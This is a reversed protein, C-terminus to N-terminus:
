EAVGDGDLDAAALHALRSSLPDAATSRFTWVESGDAGSRATVLAGTSDEAHFVIDPVDRSDIKGDGNDDTLQVVVPATEIEMDTLRWKEVTPAVGSSAPPPPECGGFCASLNNDERLEPVAGDADAEVWLVPHFFELTGSVAFSATTSGGAALGAPLTQRALERDGTSFRGDGDRDECLRATFPAAVPADGGTAITARVTGGAMLTVPSQTFGSLDIASVTLDPGAARAVQVERTARNNDESMELIANARDVVVTLEHQGETATWTFSVAQNGGAPVTPLTGSYISPAGVEPEGDFVEVPVSSAAARGGNRVTVSVAVPDGARPASSSLLVNDVGVALDPEDTLFFRASNNGENIETVLNDPDVAASVMVPSAGAVFSFMVKQSAGAALTVNSTGIVPSSYPPGNYVVVKGTASLFGTNHVNLAVSVTNGKVPRAPTATLDADEISFDPRLLLTDHDDAADNAPNPDIGLSGDHSVKASNVIETTGVPLTTNVFVDVTRTTVAGPDLDFAPWTVSGSAVTGGDASALTTFQPLTSQLNVGTANVTGHNEVTITYTL